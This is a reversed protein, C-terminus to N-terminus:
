EKIWGNKILLTYLHKLYRYFLTSRRPNVHVNGDELYSVLGAGDLKDIASIGEITRPLFSSIQGIELPTYVIDEGTFEKPLGYIKLFLRLSNKGLSEEYLKIARDLGMKGELQRMANFVDEGDYTRRYVYEGTKLDAKQEVLGFKILKHIHRKYERVGSEESIRRVEKEELPNVLRSLLRKKLYGGRPSTLTAHLEAVKDANSFIGKIVDGQLDEIHKPSM